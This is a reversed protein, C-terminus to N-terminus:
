RNRQPPRKNPDIYSVVTQEGETITFTAPDAISQKRKGNQYVTVRYRGPLMDFLMQGSRDFLGQYYEVYKDTSVSNGQIRCKCEILINLVGFGEVPCAFVFRGHNAPIQGKASRLRKIDTDSESSPMNSQESQKTSDALGPNSGGDSAVEISTPVNFTIQRIKSTDVTLAGRETLFFLKQNELRQVTGTLTKGSTSEVIESGFVCVGRFIMAICMFRISHAFYKGIM